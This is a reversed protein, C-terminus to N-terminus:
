PAHQEAAEEEAAPHGVVAVVEAVVEAQVVPVVEAVEPALDEM